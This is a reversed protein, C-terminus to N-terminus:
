LQRYHDPGRQRPGLTRGGRKGRSEAPPGWDHARLTQTLTDSGPLGAWETWRTKGAVARAASVAEWENPSVVALLNAKRIVQANPFRTKDLVGVSILTSGLTAPRIMRAHLMGPPAVDCSWITEGRVKAPIGPMPFSTGVVKYESIPKLVPDGTVTLGDMGAWDLGTVGRSAGAPAFRPTAMGKLPVTVALQRGRVLDGYTVSRSDNGTIRGEAARLESVPTQLRDAALDLLTQYAYAAVKRLNAAGTLFGSSYGGDLTCDTDGMILTVMDAHLNLEEAVVQPYFASMGTGTEGRGTRAVVTNDARIELWSALRSPDLPASSDDARASKEMGLSM